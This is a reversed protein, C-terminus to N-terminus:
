TWRQFGLSNFPTCGSARFMKKFRWNMADDDESCDRSVHLLSARSGDLKATYYLCLRQGLLLDNETLTTALLARIKGKDYAVISKHPLVYGHRLVRLHLLANEVEKQTKSARM